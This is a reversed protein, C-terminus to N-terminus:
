DDRLRSVSLNGFCSMTYTFKCDNLNCFKFGKLHTVTTHSISTREGKKIHIGRDQNEKKLATFLFFYHAHDDKLFLMKVYLNRILTLYNLVYLTHILILFSLTMDLTYCQCTILYM